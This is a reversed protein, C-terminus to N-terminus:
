RRPKQMKEFAVAGPVAPRSSSVMSQARRMGVGHAKGEFSPAFLAPAAVMATIKGPCASFFVGDNPSM